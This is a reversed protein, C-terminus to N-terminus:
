RRSSRYRRVRQLMRQEVDYILSRTLKTLYLILPGGEGTPKKNLLYLPSKSFKTSVNVNVRTVTDGQGGTGKVLEGQGQGNFRSLM